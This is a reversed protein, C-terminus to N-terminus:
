IVGEAEGWARAHRRLYALARGVKSPELGFEKAIEGRQYGEVVYPLIERALHADPRDETLTAAIGELARGRGCFADPAHVSDWDLVGEDGTLDSATLAADMSSWEGDGDLGAMGVQEYRGIRDRKRQYNNLVCECVMHVYHGFSSKREDWPCKGANRALIGRYVEQLVDEPNYGKAAMRRGFGAYLLKRVEHSRNELDIGLIVGSGDDAVTLGGKKPKEAKSVTTQVTLLGNKAKRVKRSVKFPRDPGEVAWSFPKVPDGARIQGDWGLLSLLEATLPSTSRRRSVRRPGSRGNPVPIVKSPVRKPVDAGLLSLVTPGESVVDGKPAFRGLRFYREFSMGPDKSDPGLDGGNYLARVLKRASDYEVIGDPWEVRYTLDGDSGRIVRVPHGGHESRSYLVAPAPKTAPNATPSM